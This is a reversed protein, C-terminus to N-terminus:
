TSSYSASQKQSLPLSVSVQQTLVECEIGDETNLSLLKIIWSEPSNFFSVRNELIVRFQEPLRVMVPLAVITVVFIEIIASSTVIPTLALM